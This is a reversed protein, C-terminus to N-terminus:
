LTPCNKLVARYNSCVRKSISFVPHLPSPKPPLNNNKPFPGWRRLSVIKSAIIVFSSRELTVATRLRWYEVFLTKCIISYTDINWINIVLRWYLERMWTKTFSFSLKTNTKYANRLLLMNTPLSPLSYQNWSTRMVCLLVHLRIM